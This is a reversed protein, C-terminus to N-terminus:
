AAKKIGKNLLRIQDIMFKMRFVYGKICELLHTLEEQKIEAEKISDEIVESTGVIMQMPGTLDHLMTSMEKSYDKKELAELIKEVDHNGDIIELYKNITGKIKEEV